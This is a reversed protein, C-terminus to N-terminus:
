RHTAIVSGSLLKKSYEFVSYSLAISPANKMCNPLLGKFLGKVGENAYIKRFCDTLGSYLKPRGEINQSMLRTRVVALPYTCVQACLGSLAGACFVFPTSPAKNTRRTYTDKFLTFLGLDIGACPTVGLASATWGRYFEKVGGRQFTKIACDVGGKYVGTKDLVFKTRVCEFPFVISQSLLGAFAGAAFISYRSPTDTQGGFLRKMNDFVVFKLATDPAIKCVNIGNGRYFGKLGEKKFVSAISKRFSNNKLNDQFIYKLRDLPATATRSVGGALGGALLLRSTALSEEKIKQPEHIDFYDLGMFSYNFFDGATFVNKMPFFYHHRVFEDFTIINSNDGAVHDILMMVQTEPMVTGYHKFSNHFQEKTIFGRRQLDIENFIVKLKKRQREFFRVFEKRSIHGDKNTDWGMVTERLTSNSFPVKLLRLAEEFEELDLKGDHNTDLQDFLKSPDTQSILDENELNEVNM